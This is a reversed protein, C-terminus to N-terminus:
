ALSAGSLTTQSEPRGQLLNSYACSVDQVRMTDANYAFSRMPPFRPGVTQVLAYPRRKNSSNSDPLDRSTSRLPANLVTSQRGKFSQM